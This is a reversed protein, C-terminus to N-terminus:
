VYTLIIKEQTELEGFTKGGEGHPSFSPPEVATSHFYLPEVEWQGPDPLTKTAM